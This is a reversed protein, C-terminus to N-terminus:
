LESTTSSLAQYRKMREQLTKQMQELESQLAQAEKEFVAASTQGGNDNTSHRRQPINDKNTAIEGTSSTSTLPQNPNEYASISHRRGATKNVNAKTDISNQPSYIQDETTKKYLREEASEVVSKLMMRIDAPAAQEKGEAVRNVRDWWDDKTKNNLDNFSSDNYNARKIASVVAASSGLSTSQKTSSSIQIDSPPPPPSNRTITPIKTITSNKSTFNNMRLKEISPLNENKIKSVPTSRINDAISIFEVNEDIPTSISTM